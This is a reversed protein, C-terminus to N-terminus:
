LNFIIVGVCIMANGFLRRATIKEKWIVRSLVMVYLYVLTELAPGLKYPIGRFAYIMLLMCVLTLIYGGVVFPNFYEYFLTRKKSGSFRNSGAKLMMQSAASLVGSLLAVAVYKNIM